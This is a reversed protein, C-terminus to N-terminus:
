ESILAELQEFQMPRGQKSLAVGVAEAQLALTGDAKVISQVFVYKLRGQKQLQVSVEFSDGPRLSAKFQLCISALMLHIGEQALAAFDVGKTLLFQHRAHELYHQYVANNVVGQLDCEYDRVQMQVKFM